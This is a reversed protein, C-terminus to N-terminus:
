RFVGGQFHWVDLVSDYMSLHSSPLDEEGRRSKHRELARSTARSAEQREVVKVILPFLLM